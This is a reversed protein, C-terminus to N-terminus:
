NALRKENSPSMVAQSKHCNRKNEHLKRCSTEACVHIEHKLLIMCDACIWETTRGCVECDGRQIKFM